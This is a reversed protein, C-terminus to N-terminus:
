NGRMSAFSEAFPEISPYPFLPFLLDLPPFVTDGRHGLPAAAVDNEVNKTCSMVAINPL